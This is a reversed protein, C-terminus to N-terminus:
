FKYSNIADFNIMFRYLGSPGIWLFQVLTVLLYMNLLGFLILVDFKITM